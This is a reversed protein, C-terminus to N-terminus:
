GREASELLRDAALAELRKHAVLLARLENLDAADDRVGRPGACASDVAALLGATADSLGDRTFMDCIIGVLFVSRLGWVAKQTFFLQGCARSCKDVAQM